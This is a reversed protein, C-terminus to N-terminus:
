AARWRRAMAERHARDAVSVDMPAAAVDGSSEVDSREHGACATMTCLVALAVVGAIWAREVRGKMADEDGITRLHTEGDRSPPPAGM